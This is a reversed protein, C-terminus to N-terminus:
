NTVMGSSEALQKFDINVGIAGGDLSVGDIFLYAPENPRIIFELHEMGGGGAMNAVSNEEDGEYFGSWRFDCPDENANMMASIAVDVGTGPMASVMVSGRMDSMLKYVHTPGSFLPQPSTSDNGATNMNESFPLDARTLVRANPCADHGTDAPVQVISFPIPDIQASDDVGEGEVQITYLTGATLQATLFEGAYTRNVCRLPSLAACAGTYIAIAIDPSSEAEGPVGAAIRYNATAPPTFLYFIDRRPGATSEPFCSSAVGEDRASTLDITSSHPVTSVNIGTACADGAPLPVQSINVALPGSGQVSFPEVVLTYAAGPDLHFRGQGYASKQLSLASCGGTFLGIVAGVEAASGSLGATVEIVRESGPPISYYLSGLCSDGGFPVALNLGAVNASPNKTDSFPLASIATASACAANPPLAAGDPGTVTLAFSEILKDPEPNDLTLVFATNFPLYASLVPSAASVPGGCVPVLNGCTGSWLGLSMANGEGTFSASFTYRGSSRPNFTYVVDVGGSPSGTPVFLGDDTAGLVDAMLMQPLNVSDIELATACTNNPPPSTVVGGDISLTFVNGGGLAESELLLWYHKLSDGRFTVRSHKNTVPVIDDNCAISTLSPCEGTFVELRTDVAPGGVSLTEITYVARQSLQPLRFWRDPASGAPACSPKTLSTGGTFDMPILTPLATSSLDVANECASAAPLVTGADINVIFPSQISANATEAFIWYKTTASAPIFTIRSFSSGGGIDDNCAVSVATSCDDGAFLELRTDVNAGGRVPITEIAYINAPNLLPLEIWHDTAGDDSACTAGRLSEGTAPDITLLLPLESNSEDQTLGCLGEDGSNAAISVTIQWPGVSGAVASETLIFYPDSSPAEFQVSAFPADPQVGACAVPILSGCAGRFVELNAAQIANNGAASAEIRYAVGATLNPIRIWVDSGGPFQSCSVAAANANSSNDVILGFPLAEASLNLAAACTGQAFASPASALLIATATGCIASIRHIQIM